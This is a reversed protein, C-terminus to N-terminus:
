HNLQGAGGHIGDSWALEDGGPEWWLALYERPGILPTLDTEAMGQQRLVQALQARMAPSNFAEVVRPYGIADVFGDPLPFPWVIPNRM